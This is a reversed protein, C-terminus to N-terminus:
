ANPSAEITFARRIRIFESGREEPGIPKAGLNALRQLRYGGMTNTNDRPMEGAVVPRWTSDDFGPMMWSGDASVGADCTWHGDVDSLLRYSQDSPPTMRVHRFEKEDYLAAFLMVAGPQGRVGLRFALVHEGFTILPRGTKIPVGDLFVDAPATTYMWIEFPLDSRRRWRLIVGGCGAPVECSDHAELVLKSSLKQGGVSNLKLDRDAM